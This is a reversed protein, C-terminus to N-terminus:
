KSAASILSRPQPLTMVLPPSHVSLSLIPYFTIFAIFFFVACFFSRSCTVYDAREETEKQGWLSLPNNNHVQKNTWSMESQCYWQYFFPISILFSKLKIRKVIPVRLIEFAAWEHCKESILCRKNTNWPFVKKKEPPTEHWQGKTLSKGFWPCM